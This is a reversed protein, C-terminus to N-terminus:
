RRPEHDKGEKTSFLNNLEDVILLMCNRIDKLEGDLYSYEILDIAKESKVNSFKFVDLWKPIAEANITCHLELISLESRQRNYYIGYTCETVYGFRKQNEIQDNIISIYGKSETSNPICKLTVSQKIPSLNGSLLTAPKFSGNFSDSEGVYNYRILSVDHKKKQADNPICNKSLNAM